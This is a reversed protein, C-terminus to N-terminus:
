KLCALCGSSLKDIMDDIDCDVPEGVEEDEVEEEGRFEVSLSSLLLLLLVERFERYYNRKQFSQGLLFM